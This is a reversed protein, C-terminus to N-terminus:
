SFPDFSGQPQSVWKDVPIPPPYWKPPNEPDVVCIRDIFDYHMLLDVLSSEHPKKVAGPDVLYITRDARTAFISQLRKELEGLPIEETMLAVVSIQNRPEHVPKVIVPIGGMDMPNPCRGNHAEYLPKAKPQPSPLPPIEYHRWFLLASAGLVIVAGFIAWGAKSM